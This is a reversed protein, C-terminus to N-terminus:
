KGLGKVFIDILLLRKNHIEDLHEKRPFNAKKQPISGVKIGHLADLFVDVVDAPDKVPAINGSAVEAEIASTLLKTETERIQTIIGWITDPLNQENIRFFDFFNYNNVIFEHHTNVQFLFADRLGTFNNFKEEFLKLYDNALKRMVAIYLESKDPFYYYLLAKSMSLDGAIENMTTKSYGYHLFRQHSAELIKERKIDQQDIAASM